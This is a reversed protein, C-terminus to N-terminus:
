SIVKRCHTSQGVSYNWLNRDMVIKQLDEQTSAVGYCYDFYKHCYRKEEETLNYSDMEDEWLQPNERFDIYKNIPNQRGELAQLRMLSNGSALDLLSRPKLRKAVSIALETNYQFLSAIRGSEVLEWIGDSKYDLVNPALYKEYTQRLTPELKILNDKALLDLCYRIKDLAEITLFDIKVGGLREIVKADYQTTALGNPARMMPTHNIYPANYVVIASAHIGRKNILGQIGKAVKLVDEYKSMENIFNTDPELGKEENGNILEDLSRPFGRDVPVLSSLFM